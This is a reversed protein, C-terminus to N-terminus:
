AMCYLRLGGSMKKERRKIELGKTIKEMMREVIRLSIM